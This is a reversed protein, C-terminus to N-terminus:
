LGGVPAVVIPTSTPADSGSAPEVTVAVASTSPLDVAGGRLYLANGQGNSQFLGSPRPAGQKPIVWLEYISGTPAPPLHAAMLLVGRQANLLVRGRPPQQQGQGFVVQKTEPENLFELASQASALDAAVRRIEARAEALALDNKRNQSGLWLVTVLLAAATAVFAVVWGWRPKEVGVSALVRRRLRSPAQVQEPMAALLSVLSTADKIGRSCVACGTGLHNEFESRDDAELAGLVYLEYLEAFEQCTRM